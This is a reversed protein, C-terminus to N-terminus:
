RTIKPLKFFDSDPLYHKRCPRRVVPGQPVMCTNQGDNVQLEHPWYGHCKFTVGVKKLVSRVYDDPTPCFLAPKMGSMKTAVFFPM